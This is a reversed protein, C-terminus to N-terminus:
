VPYEIPKKYEKGTMSFAPGEISKDLVEYNGPGPAHNSIDFFKRKSNGFRFLHYVVTKARAHARLEYSGPGPYFSAKSSLNIPGNTIRFSPVTKMYINKPSYSGPGPNTQKEKSKPRGSLSWSPYTKKIM